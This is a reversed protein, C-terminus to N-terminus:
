LKIETVTEKTLANKVTIVGGEYVAYCTPAGARPRSMSGVCVCAVGRVISIEPFHLHGFFFADGKGMFSPLCGSNVTHGHAFLLKREGDEILYTYGPCTVGIKEDIGRVDCNGEVMIMPVYVNAMTLRAASIDGDKNTMDGLLVIKDPKEEKVLESFREYADTQGHFDSFIAIKM